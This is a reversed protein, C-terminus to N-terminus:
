TIFSYILLCIIALAFSIYCIIECISFIKPTKILFPEYKDTKEDIQKQLAEKLRKVLRRSFWVDSFLVIGGSILGIAIMLLSLSHINHICQNNETKKLSILIGFLTSFLLLIYNFWNTQKEQKIEQLNTLRKFTDNISM